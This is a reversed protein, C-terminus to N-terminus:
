SRGVIPEVFDAPGAASATLFDLDCGQSAPLVHQRYMAPWGRVHASRDPTWAAARRALEEDPVLLDLRRGALDFEILDGETVLALPGGAASEPTVHLVVTGFSTGSMRGDTIRLM